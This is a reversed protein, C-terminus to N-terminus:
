EVFTAKVRKSILMYPIWILCIVLPYGTEKITEADFIHENPLTLKVALADVFIFVLTFLLISIYYKPSIKNKTFFLVAIFIWAFFLGTNVAIEGYLISILFPNNIEIELASLIKINLYLMVLEAIIILPSLVVGIGVLILWGGLGKINKEEAM